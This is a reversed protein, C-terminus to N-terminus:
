DNAILQEVYESVTMGAKAAERKAKAVSCKRIYLNLAVKSDDEAVEGFISNYGDETLHKEAWRKAEDYSLPKIATRGVYQTLAGGTIYLFFEGTKKCFLEENCYEYVSTKGNSWEGCKTAKETDYVKGKITTKM